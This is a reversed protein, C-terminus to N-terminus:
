RYDVKRTRLVWIDRARPCPHLGAWWHDEGLEQIVINTNPNAKLEAQRSASWDKREDAGHKSGVKGHYEIVSEQVARYVAVLVDGVTVMSSDLMAPFVVILRGLGPVVIAMSGVTSPNMAPQQRWGQQGIHMRTTPPLHATTPPLRLDYDLVVKSPNYSLLPNVYIPVDALAPLPITQPYLLPPPQISQKLHQQPHALYPRRQEAHRQERDSKTAPSLHYGEREIQSRSTGKTTSSDGMITDCGVGPRHYRITTTMAMRSTTTYARSMVSLGFETFRVKSFHRGPSNDHEVMSSSSENVTKGTSQSPYGYSLTPFSNTTFHFPPRTPYIRYCVKYREV